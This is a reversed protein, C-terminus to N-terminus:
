GALLAGKHGEVTSLPFNPIDRYPLEETETFDATLNGLGSGLVVAIKPRKTIRAQIYEASQQAKEYLNEMSYVGRLNLIEESEELAVLLKLTKNKGFGVAKAIQSSSKGLRNMSNYIIAEDESLEGEGNEYIYGGEQVHFSFPVRHSYCVNRLGKIYKENEFPQTNTNVDNLGIYIKSEIM